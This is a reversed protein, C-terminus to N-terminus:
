TGQMHRTHSVEATNGDDGESLRQLLQTYADSIETISVSGQLGNPLSIELSFDQIAKVCGLVLMGEPINQLDFLIYRVIILVVSPMNSM